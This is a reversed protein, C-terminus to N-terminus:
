DGNFNNIIEELKSIVSKKTFNKKYYNFANEGCNSYADNNIIFDRLANALGEVDNGEVCIGCKAEDIAKKASGSIMGIIPKGAAMYGQVKTPLTLGIDNEVTLSVICADALSYFKNMENVPKRGYFVVKNNMSNKEVYKKINNFNSGDGVIHFVYNLDNIMYFADLVKELNQAKGINGLFVFDIIGNDIKELNIKPNEFYYPLYRTNTINHVKYLYEIFSESQCLILNASSYLKKSIEKFFVFIFNKESKIYVKLCEPWIDCCWLIFPKNYKKSYKSAAAIMTIPSTEYGLVIDFDSSLTKVKKISSLWFSIYNLALFLVNKRRPIEFCRVVNVGNINENRNKGYKYDNDLIGSPYNPLGVLATVTYDDKVLQECIDTIQFNEPYYHQCM